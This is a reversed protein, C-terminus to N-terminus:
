WWWILLQVEKQFVITLHNNNTEPTTIQLTQHTVHTNWLPSPWQVTCSSRCRWTCWWRHTVLLWANLWASSVASVTKSWSERWLRCPRQSTRSAAGTWLFSIHTHSPPKHNDSKEKNFVRVPSVVLQELHVAETYTECHKHSIILWKQNTKEDDNVATQIFRQTKIVVM